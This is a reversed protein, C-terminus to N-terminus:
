PVERVPRHPTLLVNVTGLAETVDQKEMGFLGCLLPFDDVSRLDLWSYANSSLTLLFRYRFWLTMIDRYRQLVKQRTVGCAHILPYLDIDIAVSNVAANRAAIHDFSNKQTKHLHRLIHVGHLNLVGRNFVNDGASVIILSNKNEQKKIMGSVRRLNSEAILVSPIIRVGQYNSEHSVPAVVSEFGLAAAELAM